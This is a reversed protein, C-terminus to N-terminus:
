MESGGVINPDADEHCVHIPTRDTKFLFKFIMLKRNYNLTRIFRDDSCFLICVPIFWVVCVNLFIWKELHLYLDNVFKWPSYGKASSTLLILPIYVINVRHKINQLMIFLIFWVPHYVPHYQNNSMELLFTVCAFDGCSFKVHFIELSNLQLLSIWTIIERSYWTFNM